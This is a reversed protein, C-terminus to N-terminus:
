KKETVEMKVLPRIWINRFRVPNHHALLTIPGTPKIGRYTGVEAHGTSGYVEQDHHMLVGNHLLTIRAPAALKGDKFRPAIFVIDYTQWQGPKRCANVLPPTQGYISAAQGDAYLKQSYSDFVQVEIARLFQVGNNGRNFAAGQPPDPTQWEVHLQCDGFEQKTSLNGTGAVLCGQEITWQAPQWRDMDHGDFLVIADSPATGPADLTSPRGPDIRKPEPRDPDHVRWRSWPQIPTDTYGPVGAKTWILTHKVPKPKAPATKDAAPALSAFSGGLFVSLCLHLLFRAMVTKVREELAVDRITTESVRRDVDCPYRRAAGAELAISSFGTEARKFRGGGRTVIPQSLM